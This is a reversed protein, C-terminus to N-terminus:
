ALFRPTRRSKEKGVGGGLGSQKLTFLSRTNELLTEKIKGERSRKQRNRQEIRKKRSM